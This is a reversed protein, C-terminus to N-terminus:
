FKFDGIKKKYKGQGDIVRLHSKSAKKCDSCYYKSKAANHVGLKCRYKRYRSALATRLDRHFEVFAFIMIISLVLVVFHDPSSSM